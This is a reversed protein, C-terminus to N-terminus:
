RGLEPVAAKLGLARDVEITLLDDPGIVCIPTSDIQIVSGEAVGTYVVQDGEFFGASKTVIPFFEPSPILTLNPNTFINVVGIYGMMNAIAGFGGCLIQNVEDPVQAIMALSIEKGRAVRVEGFSQSVVKVETNETSTSSFDSIPVVEGDIMRAADVFILNGDADSYALCNFVMTQFFGYGVVEGNVKAVTGMVEEIRISNVDFRYLRRLSVFPDHRRKPYIVNFRGAAIGFIPVVRGEQKMGSLADNYTGDGAVITIMEAGELAMARATEMTDRSGGTGASGVVPAGSCVAAGMEGPGVFVTKVQDKLIGYAEQTIRNIEERGMGAYPNCILGVKEM